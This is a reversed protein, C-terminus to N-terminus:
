WDVAADRLRESCDFTMGGGFVVRLQNKGM